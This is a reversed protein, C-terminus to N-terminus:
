EHKALRYLAEKLPVYQCNAGAQQITQRAQVSLPRSKTKKASHVTAQPETIKIQISILQYLGAEKRLQDRLNPIEYRLPTAWVPDPTTLVLCGRNFSGVHCHDRLSSSLFVHLKDNLESLKMSQECISALQKNLCQNIPRM